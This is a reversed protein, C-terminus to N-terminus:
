ETAETNQTDEQVVAGQKNCRYAIGAVGIDDDGYTNIFNISVYDAGLDAAEKRAEQIATAQGSYQDITVAAIVEYNCQPKDNMLIIVENEDISDYENQSIMVNSKYGCGSMMVLAALSGLIGKKM